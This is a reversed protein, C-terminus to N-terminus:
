FNGPAVQCCRIGQERWMDVVQQRDDFVISPAYGYDKVVAALLDRKVKYDPRRDKEDRMYLLPRRLYDVFGYDETLHRRLETHNLLWEQTVERCVDNRGSVFIVETGYEPDSRNENLFTNCLEVMEPIPADGRVRAFFADWDPKGGEPLFKVWHLRHSLDCLTGDLDFAVLM